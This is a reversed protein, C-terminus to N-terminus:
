SNRTSHYSQIQKGEAVRNAENPHRILARFATINGEISETAM